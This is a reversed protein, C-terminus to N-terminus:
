KKTCAYITGFEQYGENFKVENVDYKVKIEDILEKKITWVSTTEVLYMSEDEGLILSNLHTAKKGPLLYFDITFRNKLSFGLAYIKTNAYDPQEKLWLSMERWPQKELRDKNFFSLYLGPFILLFLTFAFVIQRLRLFSIHSILENLSLGLLLYVAPSMVMGYRDVLIPFKAFSYLLPIITVSLIISIILLNKKYEVKFTRFLFFLIILVLAINIWTFYGLGFTLYGWLDIEKLWFEKVKLSHVLGWFIWPAYLIGTLLYSLVTKIFIIRDREKIFLYLDYLFLGFVFFMGFQHFYCLIANIIGIIIYLTIRGPKKEQIHFNTWLSAVAVCYTFIYFRAELSYIIQTPNFAVILALIIGLKNGKIKKGLMSSLVIALIGGLVSLLRASFETYGFLKTWQWLLMFYAPPQYMRQMYLIEYWSNDPHVSLMSYLEDAWLSSYQINIFRLGAGIVVIILLILYFYKNKNLLESLTM